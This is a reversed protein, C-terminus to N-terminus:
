QLDSNDQEPNAESEKEGQSQEPSFDESAPPTFAPPIDSKENVFANTSGSANNGPNVEKPVSSNYPAESPNYYSGQAPEASQTNNQQPTFPAGSNVASGTFANQYQMQAMRNIKQQESLFDMENMKGTAFARMRFNEYFLAKTTMYYPIVYIMPFIFICLFYWGIFSLDLLFLESKSGQTMEKSLRLAEKVSLEPNDELIQTAFYYKYNAVIGPIIFLLSWLFVIIARAYYLLLRKFYASDFTKKFIESIGSGVTVEKGRVFRVFYGDLAVLLASLFLGILSVANVSINGTNGTLGLSGTFNNFDNEGDNQGFNYFNNEEDDDDDFEYYDDNDNDEGYYSGPNEFYDKLDDAGYSYSSQNDYIKKTTDISTVFNGANSLATCILAIVFLAFVNGRILQKAQSKIIGRDLVIM